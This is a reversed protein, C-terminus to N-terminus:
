LGSAASPFPTFNITPLAHGAGADNDVLPPRTMM